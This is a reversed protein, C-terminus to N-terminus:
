NVMDVHRALSQRIKAQTLPISFPLSFIQWGVWVFYIIKNRMNYDHTILQIWQKGHRWFAMIVNSSSFICIAQSSRRVVSFSHSLSLAPTMSVMRLLILFLTLTTHIHMFVVQFLWESIEEKITFTQSLNCPVSFSFSLIHCGVNNQWLYHLVMQQKPNGSGNKGREKWISEWVDPNATTSRSWLCIM